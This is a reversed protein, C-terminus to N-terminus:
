GQAKARKSRVIARIGLLFILLSVFAGTIFNFIFKTRFYLGARDVLAVQLNFLSILTSALSATYSYHALRKGWRIYRVFRSIALTGGIIAYLALFILAVGVHRAGTNKYVANMILGCMPFSLVLLLVGESRETDETDSDLAVCRMAIMVSYFVGVAIFHADKYIIGLSLNLVAYLSNFIMGLFLAVGARTRERLVYHCIFGMFGNM